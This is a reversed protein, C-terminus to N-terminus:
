RGRVGMEAAFDASKVFLNRQFKASSKRPYFFWVYWCLKESNTRRGTKHALKPKPKKELYRTVCNVLWLKSYSLNLGLVLKKIKCTKPQPWKPYKPDNPTLIWVNEFSSLNHLVGLCYWFSARSGTILFFQNKLNDSTLHGLIALMKPWKLDFNLSSELLSQDVFQKSRLSLSLLLSRNMLQSSRVSLRLLALDMLQRSRLSLSLLLSQDVFQRSRLSLRLLSLNLLQRWRLSLSLLSCRDM